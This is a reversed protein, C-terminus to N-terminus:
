GESLFVAMYPVHGEDGPGGAETWSEMAGATIDRQRDTGEELPGVAELSCSSWCTLPCSGTQEPSEGGGVGVLGVLGVLIWWLGM